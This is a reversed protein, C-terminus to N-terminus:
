ESDHTVVRAKGTQQMTLGQVLTLTQAYARQAALAMRLLQARHEQNRATMSEALYRLFTAELIPLHEALEAVANASAPDTYTSVRARMADFAAARDFTSDGRVFALAQARAEAPDAPLFVAAARPLTSAPEPLQRNEPDSLGTQAKRAKSPKNETL